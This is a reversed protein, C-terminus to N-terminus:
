NGIRRPQLGGRIAYIKAGGTLHCVIIVALPNEARWPKDPFDIRQWGSATIPRCADAGLNEIPQRQRDSWLEYTISGGEPVDVLIEIPKADITAPVSHPGLAVTGPRSPDRQAYFGLKDVELWGRGLSTERFAGHPGNGGMWYFWLKGDREIPPASAYVCGCDWEGDPYSGTGREIVPTFGQVFEWSDLDWAITLVADVLDHDDADRDGEHIMSALGVYHQHYRFVPMSYIQNAPGGGRMMEVPDTWSTFDDSFSVASVRVGDRWVRTVLVYRRTLPDRFVFNHTDADPNFGALRRPETWHIGDHSFAVALIHNDPGWDLRTLLKYRRNPDPDDVDLTVGGGHSIPMVLNNATSGEFDVLGLEPKTWVIGDTSEAYALAARRGHEARYPTTPRDALPTTVACPDTVFVTWWMKFMFDRPDYVVNPYANDYRAEWRKPPDAFFEEVLLPNHQTDKQVRCVELAINRGLAHFVTGPDVVLLTNSIM